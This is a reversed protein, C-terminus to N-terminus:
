SRDQGDPEVDVVHAAGDMEAGYGDACPQCWWEDYEHDHRVAPRSDGNACKGPAHGCFECERQLAPVTM